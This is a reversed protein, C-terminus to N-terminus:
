LRVIRLGIVRALDLQRGDTSLFGDADLTKAWACHLIDLTRCGTAAAHQRALHVAENIADLVHANVAVLKGSSVDERVLALADEAQEATAEERFVKLKLAATLELAHLPTYVIADGSIRDAVVGSDPEPYYLKVLCGTDLYVM